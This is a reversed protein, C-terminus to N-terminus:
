QNNQKILEVLIKYLFYNTFALMIVIGVILPFTPEM